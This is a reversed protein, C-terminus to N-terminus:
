RNQRKAEYMLLAAAIAANLSEVKGEMPIKIKKDALQTLEDTLGNGENGIFFACKGKFSEEYMDRGKLHAAFSTYGHEKLTPLVQELKDVYVFPVRFIAGMTARAVKPSFLDVTDRSMIIGAMGAGEATRVMTGLNGPDQVNELLLLSRSTHGIMQELSYQPMRAIAVIGQPTKTDSIQGMVSESVEEVERSFAHQALYQETAYAKVFAADPIEDVFRMGEVVFQGAKRREKASKKLKLISKVQQNQTSTIM